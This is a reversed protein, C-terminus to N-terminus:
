VGGARGLLHPEVGFGRGAIGLASSVSRRYKRHACGSRVDDDATAPSRSGYTAERCALDRLYRTGSLVM